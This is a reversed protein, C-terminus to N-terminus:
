TIRLGTIFRKGSHKRKYGLRELRDGMTQKGVASRIGSHTAWNSFHRYHEEVPVLALPDSTCREDVFQAVQDAEM